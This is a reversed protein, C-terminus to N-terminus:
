RPYPWPSKCHFFFESISESNKFFHLYLPLSLFGTNMPYYKLINISVSRDVETYYFSCPSQLLFGPKPRPKNNGLFIVLFSDSRQAKTAEDTFYSYSDHM